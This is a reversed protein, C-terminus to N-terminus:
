ANGTYMIFHVFYQAPLNSKTTSYVSSSSASIPHNHNANWVSSAVSSSAVTHDHSSNVSSSETNASPFTNHNHDNQIVNAQNGTVRNANQGDNIQAGPVRSGNTNHTHGTANAAIAVAVNISAAHNGPTSSNATGISNSTTHTHTQDLSGVTTSGVIFKDSMDPTGNQGDCITWGSPIKNSPGAFPLIYGVQPLINQGRLSSSYRGVDDSVKLNAM